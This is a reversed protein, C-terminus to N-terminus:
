SAEQAVGGPPFYVPIEAYEIGLMKCLQYVTDLEFSRRGMLRDTLYTQSKGLEKCLETQKIEKEFLLAKLKKFKRQM